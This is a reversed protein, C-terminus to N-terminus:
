NDSFPVERRLAEKQVASADAELPTPVRNFHRVKYSGCEEVLMFGLALARRMDEARKREYYGEPPM